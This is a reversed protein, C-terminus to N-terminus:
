RRDPTNTVPLAPVQPPPNLSAVQSGPRHFYRNALVEAALDNPVHGQLSWEESIAREPGVEDRWNVHDFVAM